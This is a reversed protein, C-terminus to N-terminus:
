YKQLDECEKEYEKKSPFLIQDSPTPNLEKLLWQKSGLDKGKLMKLADPNQHSIKSLVEASQDRLEDNCGYELVIQSLIKHLRPDQKRFESLAKLAAKRIFISTKENELIKFLIEIFEDDQFSRDVLGYIIWINKWEYYGDEKLIKMFLENIFPDKSETKNLIRILHEKIYERKEKRLLEIFSSTYISDKLDMEELIEAGLLSIGEDKGEEILRIFDPILDEHDLKMDKLAEEMFRQMERKPEEQLDEILGRVLSLGKESKKLAPCMNILPHTEARELSVLPHSALALKIGDSRRKLYRGRNKVEHQPDIAGKELLYEYVECNEKLRAPQFTNYAGLHVKYAIHDIPRSGLNYEWDEDREYKDPFGKANIPIKHEEVLAKIISFNDVFDHESHSSVAMHLLNVEQSKFHVDAGEKILLDFKDKTKTNSVTGSVFLQYPHRIFDISNSIKEWFTDGEFFGARGQPSPIPVTTDLLLIALPSLGDEAKVNVDHGKSIVDEMDEITGSVLFTPDCLEKCIPSSREQARAFLFIFSCLIFVSSKM